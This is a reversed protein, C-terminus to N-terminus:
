LLKNGCKICFNANIKRNAGCLECYQPKKLELGTQDVIPPTITEKPIHTIDEKRLEETRAEISEKKTHKIILFIAVGLIAAILPIILGIILLPFINPEGKSVDDLEIVLILYNQYYVKFEELIGDDDYTLVVIDGLGLVTSDIIISRYSVGVFLSYLAPIATGFEQIYDRTKTLIFLFDYTFGSEMTVTPDDFLDGALDEPDKAIKAHAIGEREREDNEYVDFYLRYYDDEDEFSTLKYTVKDGEDYDFDLALYDAEYADLFEELKEENVRTCEWTIETNEDFGLDYDDSGARSSPMFIISFCIVFIFLFLAKLRSKVKLFESWLKTKIM